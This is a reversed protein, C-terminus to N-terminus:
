APLELQWHALALALCPWAFGVASCGTRLVTRVVMQLSDIMGLGQDKRSCEDGEEMRRRTATAREGESQIQV